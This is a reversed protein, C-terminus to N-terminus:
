VHFQVPDLRIESKGGGSQSRVGIPHISGLDALDPLIATYEAGPELGMIVAMYFLLLLCYVGCCYVILGYVHVAHQAM